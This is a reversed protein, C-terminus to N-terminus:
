AIGAAGDYVLKLGMVILALYSILYFSRESVRKHLWVGLYFGVPVFPLLTVSELLSASNLQGLWAYPILKIYNIAAFFLVMTSHLLTKHLRMPLLYMQVPPAGAHAVFSTFGALAGSLKGVWDPPTRAVPSAERWYQYLSRVGFLLSIIGLILRIADADLYKFSLTGIGIGLLAGVLMIKVLHAHGKGWYTWLAMVDFLCLIPLILAAAYRPDLVLALMPMAIVNFAGGLGGKSIGLLLVALGAILYILTTDLM